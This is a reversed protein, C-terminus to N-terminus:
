KGEVPVLEATYSYNGCKGKQKAEELDDYIQEQLVLGQDIYANVNVFLKKPAFYLQYDPSECLTGEENFCTLAGDDFQVVISRKLAPRDLSIIKGTIENCVVRDGVKAKSLEFKEMM